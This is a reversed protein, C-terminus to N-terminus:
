HGCEGLVRVKHQHRQEALQKECHPSGRRFKARTLPFLSHVPHVSDFSTALRGKSDQGRNSHHLKRITHRVDGNEFLITLIDQARVPVTDARLHTLVLMCMHTM